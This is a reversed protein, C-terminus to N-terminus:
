VVRIFEILNRIQAQREKTLRTSAGNEITPRISGGEFELGELEVSADIFMDWSANAVKFQEKQKESLIQNAEEVLTRLIEKERGYEDATAINMDM